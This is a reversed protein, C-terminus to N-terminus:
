RRIKHEEWLRSNREGLGSRYKSVEVSGCKRVEVSGCKWVELSGFKGSSVGLEWASRPPILHGEWFESGASFLRSSM